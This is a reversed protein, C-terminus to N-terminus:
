GVLRLELREEVRELGPLVHREGAEGIRERRMADDGRRVFRRGFPPRHLEAFDGSAQDAM